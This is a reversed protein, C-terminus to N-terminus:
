GGTKPESAPTPAVAGTLMQTYDVVATGTVIFRWEGADRTLTIAQDRQQGETNEYRVRLVAIQRDSPNPDSESQAVVAMAQVTSAMKDALLTAFMKEPTGFRGRVDAPLGDFLEVLKSGAGATRFDLMEVLADIEGHTAAWLFSEVSAAATARGANRWENSPVLRVALPPTAAVTPAPPRSKIADIEYRMRLLSAHDDRLAAVEAPSVGQAALQQNERRLQAGEAQQRRLEGLESRLQAATLHQLFLIGGGMLVLTGVIGLFLTSRPM